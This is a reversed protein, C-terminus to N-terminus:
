RVVASGLGLSGRLWHCVRRFVCLPVLDCPVLGMTAEQLFSLDRSRKRWSFGFQDVSTALPHTIHGTDSRPHVMGDGKTGRPTWSESPAPDNSWIFVQGEVADGRGPAHTVFSDSVADHLTECAVKMPVLTSYVCELDLCFTRSCDRSQTAEPRYEDAKRAGGERMAKTNKNRHTIYTSAHQREAETHTASLRALQSNLEPKM